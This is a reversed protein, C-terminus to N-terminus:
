KGGETSGSFSVGQFKKKEEGAKGKTLYINNCARKGQWGTLNTEKNAKGGAEKGTGKNTQDKHICEGRVRGYNALEKTRKGQNLDCDGM